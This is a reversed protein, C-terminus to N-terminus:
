VAQPGTSTMQMIKVGRQREVMNGIEFGSM